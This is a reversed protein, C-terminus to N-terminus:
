VAQRSTKVAANMAKLLPMVAANKRSTGVALLETLSASSSPPHTKTPATITGEPINEKIVRAHPNLITQREVSPM